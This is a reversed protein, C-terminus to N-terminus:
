YRRKPSFLLGLLFGAAAAILVSRGPNERVYDNVDDAAGDFDERVRGYGERLQVSAQQYREEAM